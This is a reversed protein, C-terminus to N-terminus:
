VKISMVFSGTVLLPLSGPGFESIRERFHEKEPNRQEVLDMALGSSNNGPRNNTNCNEEADSLKGKKERKERKKHDKTTKQPRKHTGNSLRTQPVFPFNDFL